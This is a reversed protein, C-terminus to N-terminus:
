FFTENLFWRNKLHLMCSSPTEPNYNRAKRPVGTTRQVSKLSNQFHKLNERGSKFSVALEAQSNNPDKNVELRFKVMAMKYKNVGM